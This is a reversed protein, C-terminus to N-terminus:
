SKGAKNVLFSTMVDQNPYDLTYLRRKADKGRATKENFDGHADDVGIKLYPGSKGRGPNGNTSTKEM